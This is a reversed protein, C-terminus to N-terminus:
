VNGYEYWHPDKKASSLVQGVAQASAPDSGTTKRRLSNRLPDNTRGGASTKPQRQSIQPPPPPNQQQQSQQQHSSSRGRQSNRLNKPGFMDNRPESEMSQSTAPEPEERAGGAYFYISISKLNYKM